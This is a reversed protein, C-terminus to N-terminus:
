KIEGRGKELVAYIKEAWKETSEYQNIFHIDEKEMTVYTDLSPPEPGIFMIVPKIIDKGAMDRVKRALEFGGDPKIFIHCIFLDPRNEELIPMVQNADNTLSVEFGYWELYRGMVKLFKDDNCAFLLKKM